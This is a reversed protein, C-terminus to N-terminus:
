SEGDWYDVEPGLVGRHSFTRAKPDGGSASGVYVAVKSSDPYEVVEADIMTSVSLYRLEENSTNIIQHATEKGGAPAAIVDGARIPYEAEGIRVKGRGAIVFFMEENVHHCHFPYARKGPQVVMYSYGLKKAGVEPGIPGDSAEFREGHEVREFAVEDINLIPKVV